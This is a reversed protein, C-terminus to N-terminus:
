QGKIIAIVSVVILVFGVIAFMGFGLWGWLGCGLLLMGVAFLVDQKDLM